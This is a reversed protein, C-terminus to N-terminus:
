MFDPVQLITLLAEVNTRIEGRITLGKLATILNKRAIERNRGSAFIHGIQSDAYTHVKGTAGICFYGWVNMSTRLQLEFVDGCTPKFNDEAHESTVRAAICHTQIEVHAAKNKAFRQCLSM